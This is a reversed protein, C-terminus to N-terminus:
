KGLAVTIIGMVVNVAAIIRLAAALGAARGRRAMICNKNSNETVSLEVSCFPSHLISLFAVCENVCKKKVVM